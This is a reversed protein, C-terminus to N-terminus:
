ILFDEINGAPNPMQEWQPMEAEVAMEEVQQEPEASTELEPESEPEAQIIVNVAEQQEEPSLGDLIAIMRQWNGTLDQKAIEPNYITKLIIIDQQPLQSIVSKIEDM